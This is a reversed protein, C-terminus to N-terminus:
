FAVRTKESHGVYKPDVTKLFSRLADPNGLNGKCGRHLYVCGGRIRRKSDRDCLRIADTGRLPKHCVPCEDPVTPTSAASPTKQKQVVAQFLEQKAQQQLQKRRLSDETPATGNVINKTYNALFETKGILPSLGLRGKKVFQAFDAKEEPTVTFPLSYAYALNKDRCFSLWGETRRKSMKEPFYYDLLNVLGDMDDCTLKEASNAVFVTKYGSKSISRFGGRQEDWVAQTESYPVRKTYGNCSDNMCAATEWLPQIAATTYTRSNYSKKASSQYMDGLGFTHGIEHLVHGRLEEPSYIDWKDLTMAVLNNHVRVYAAAGPAQVVPVVRVYLDQAKDDVCPSLDPNIFEFTLKKKPLLSLVDAFEASRGSRQITNRLTDMWMQYSSEIIPRIKEYTDSNEKANSPNSSPRSNQDLLDMCVRIHAQRNIIKPLLVSTNKNEQVSQLFVWAHAPVCAWLCFLLLTLIKKM